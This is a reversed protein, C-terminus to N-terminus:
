LRLIQLHSNMRAVFREFRWLLQIRLNGSKASNEALSAQAAPLIKQTPRRLGPLMPFRAPERIVSRDAICIVDPKAGASTLWIVRPQRRLVALRLQQFYRQERHVASQLAVHLHVRVLRKVVEAIAHTTTAVDPSHESENPM